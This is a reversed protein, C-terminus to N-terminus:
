DSDFLYQHKLILEIFIKLLSKSYLNEIFFGSVLGRNKLKPVNDGAPVIDWNIPVDGRDIM